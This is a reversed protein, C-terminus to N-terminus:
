EPEVRYEIRTVVGIGPVDRVRRLADAVRGQLRRELWMKNLVSPVAVRLLDGEQGVVRTTAFWADFNEATMIRALEDLVACWVPHEQTSHRPVPSSVPPPIPASTRTGDSRSPRRSRDAAQRTGVPRTERAPPQVPDSITHLLDTLVAFLYPMANPVGDDYRRLISGQRAHTRNAAETLLVLFREHPLGATHWLNRARTISAAPTHDGLRGSLAAVGAAIARAGAEDPTEDVTRPGDTTDHRTTM